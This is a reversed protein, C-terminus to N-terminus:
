TRPPAPISLRLHQRQRRRRQHQRRRRRRRPQKDRCRGARSCSGHAARQNPARGPCRHRRPRSRRLVGSAARREPHGGCARDGGSNSAGIGNSGYHISEGSAATAVVFLASGAVDHLNVFTEIGADGFRGPGDIEAINPTGGTQSAVSITKTNSLTPNGGSCTLDNSGNNVVIATGSTRLKLQDGGQLAVQVLDLPAGTYTCSTTASATGPALLFATAMVALSAGARVTGM